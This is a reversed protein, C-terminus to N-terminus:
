RILSAGVTGTITNAVVAKIRWTAPLPVGISANATSPAGPYVTLTKLGAAINVATSTLIDYYLGSALDKGQVTVTLTGTGGDTTVSVGVVVGRCLLNQQDASTYTGAGKSGSPFLQSAVAAAVDHNVPNAM